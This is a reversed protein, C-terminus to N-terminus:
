SATKKGIRYADNVSTFIIRGGRKDLFDTVADIGHLVCGPLAGSAGSEVAIVGGVSVRPILTRIAAKNAEYSESRMGLFAVPQTLDITDVPYRVIRIQDAPYGSVALVAPLLEAGDPQRATRAPADIMDCCAGWLPLHIEPRHRHDGTIDFVILRRATDGLQALTVAILAITDLAGEGCDIIDGVLRAKSLYRVATYIAFAQDPPARSTHHVREYAQRFYAQLSPAPPQDFPSQLNRPAPLPRPVLVSSPTVKGPPTATAVPVIIDAPATERALDSRKLLTYGFRELSRLVFKKALKKM